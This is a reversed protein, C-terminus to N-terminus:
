EEQTTHDICRLWKKQLYTTYLIVKWLEKERSVLRSLIKARVVLNMPMLGKIGLVDNQLPV